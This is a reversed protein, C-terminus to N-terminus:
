MMSVWFLIVAILQFQDSLVDVFVGGVAVILAAVENFTGIVFVNTPKKLPDVVTSLM